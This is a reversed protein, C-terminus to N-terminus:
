PGGCSEAVLRSLRDYEVRRREVNDPHAFRWRSEAERAQRRWAECAAGDPVRSCQDRVVECALGAGTAPNGDLGVTRLPLCRPPVQADESLYSDNDYTTCRFIPPPPPLGPDREVAPATARPLNASDLIRPEPGTSTTIVGGDAARQTGFAGAGSPDGPGPVTSTTIFGGDSSRQVQQAQGTSAPPSGPPFGAAGVAPVAADPSSAVGAMQRESQSSGEPCPNNQVTLTGATDTCRYITTQASAMAPMALVPLLLATALLPQM